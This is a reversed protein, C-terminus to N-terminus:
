EWVNKTTTKKYINMEDFITLEEATAESESDPDFVKESAYLVDQEHVLAIYKIAPRIYTKM